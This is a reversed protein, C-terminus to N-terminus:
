LYLLVRVMVATAVIGLGQPLLSPLPLRSIKQSLVLSAVVSVGLAATQLFAIVAPHASWQVSMGTSLGFTALTVPVLQGAEGLGLPLYYALNAGLVLPLYGYALRVFPQPQGWLRQAQHLGWALAGPVALLLMAVGAQVGFSAAPQGWWALIHPLHHLVVAGLLLFLLCVEYATATHSTWLDIAPPRLNLEVSRHPCAKLCTMCLVCNRNDTLQAPHSYVPCGGTAQGEGLAPGGKYCQYTDCSAACVGQQARLELISLKGFLGNMGGIPCLYRCWFRREYLQSFIVAGATILILLWSSLYATNPLDWLEEWLLIAAFLAFLFWGGWKEALPRPWAGLQRPLLKLSLTQLLEGYIMFPCVACWIRGLFPFILLSVPWWWAWFLNLALNHARDQPGWLGIAVILPFAWLTIGYNLYNPWWRSRLLARLRPYANLLNWRFRRQKSHEPWFVEETLLSAGNAQLIAREVLSALERLNGPFDYSQLRRLAERTIRPKPIRQSRCCLAIYYNVLAELDAKTVRLPPVKIVHRVLDQCTCDKKEAILIIRGPFSRPIATTESAPAYERNQVLRRLQPYLHSPWEHVNNLILTGEGLWDLLGQKGGAKGFLEAGNVSLTGCNVQILPQRRDGSGYHILAAINDKELGPEGFILVPHRDSAAEKIAQRLRVAYRSSGVIGQRVRPVLYPRLAAQREKEYALQAAVDALAGKIQQSITQRLEPFQAALREFVDRALTWVECDSLTIVTQPTPQDLVLEQWHLVTGPLLSVVAAPTDATTHYAELHGSYLIYLATVPQDELVLRRNAAIHEQRVAAAIAELAALSLSALPTHRQLWQLRELVNM